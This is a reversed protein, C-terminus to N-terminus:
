MKNFAGLAANRYTEALTPYNFVANVFCDLKGADVLMAKGIHVM